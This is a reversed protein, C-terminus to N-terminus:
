GGSDRRVRGTVLSVNIRGRRKQWLVRLSLQAYGNSVLDIRIYLIFLILEVELSWM